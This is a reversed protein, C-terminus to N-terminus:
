AKTRKAEKQEISHHSRMEGQSTDGVNKDAPQSAKRGGTALCSHRGVQRSSLRRELQASAICMRSGGGVLSAAAKLLHQSRVGRWVAAPAALNGEACAM